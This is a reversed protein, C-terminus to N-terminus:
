LTRASEMPPSVAVGSSSPPLKPLPSSKRATDLPLTVIAAFEVDAVIGTTMLESSM